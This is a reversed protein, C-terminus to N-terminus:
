FGVIDVHSVKLYAIFKKSYKEPRWGPASVLNQKKIKDYDRIYFGTHINCFIKFVREFPVDDQHTVKFKSRIYHVDETSKLYLVIVNRDFQDYYIRAPDDKYFFEKMLIDGRRELEMVIRANETTNEVGIRPYFDTVLFGQRKLTLVNRGHLLISHNDFHKRCQIFFFVSM